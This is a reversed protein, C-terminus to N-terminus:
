TPRHLTLLLVNKRSRTAQIKLQLLLESKAKELPVKLFDSQQLHWCDVELHSEVKVLYAEIGQVAASIILSFM